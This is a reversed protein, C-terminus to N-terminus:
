IKIPKAFNGELFTWLSKCKVSLTTSYKEAGKVMTFLYM